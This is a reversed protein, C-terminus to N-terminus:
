AYSAFVYLFHFAIGSGVQIDAEKAVLQKDREQIDSQQNQITNKAEDWCGHLRSVEAQM